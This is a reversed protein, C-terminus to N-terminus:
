VLPKAAYNAICWDLGKKTLHVYPAADEGNRKKAMMQRALGRDIARKTPCRSQKCVLGDARLLAYLRKGTMRPDVQAVYRAASQISFTGEGDMFSDYAVAKPLMRENEARLADAREREAKLEQLTRIMTDPDRLMAEVTQPTAYMGHRRITPIVEHTVWRRFAKAEPKKSSLVLTYLGAENVTAMQQAGGLTDNSIVGKEDDDLRTLAQRSNKIELAACVDKAVFWPEAEDDRIVRLNGFENSEFLQISDSSM